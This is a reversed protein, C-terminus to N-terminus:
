IFDGVDCYMYRCRTDAALLHRHAACFRFRNHYLRQFLLYIYTRKVTWSSATIDQSGAHVVTRQRHPYNIRLGVTRGPVGIRRIGM